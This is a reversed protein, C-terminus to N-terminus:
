ACVVLHAVGGLKAVTESKGGALRAIRAGDSYFISGDPAVDFALVSDAVREVGGKTIRVLEYGRSAARGDSETERKADERVNVLNGWVAMQRADAAKQRANGSTLLPKGTYRATFMSLFGFVAFLLRFPFLLADVFVRFFPPAAHPEVYPRRIAYVVDESTPVPAIYDFKPDAVVVELEQAGLSLRQIAFPALGSWVGSADRGIGASAYVVQGVGRPVWRPARDLVDGDTVTRVGAGDDRLIGISSSGGKGGVSVAVAQDEVSLAVDWLKLEADHLLRQETGADIVQAFLGTVVGTSLAYVIEGPERGRTVGIVQAPPMEDQEQGWLVARGGAMFQAGTGQTKWATKRRIQRERSRVQEAFPSDVERPDRGEEVMMLKAGAICALRYGM